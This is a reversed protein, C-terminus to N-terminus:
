LSLAEAQRQSGQKIQNLQKLAEEVQGAILLLSSYLIHYDATHETLPLADLQEFAKTLDNDLVHGLIPQLASISFHQGTDSYDIVPPYYLTWQVADRLKIRPGIVPAQGKSAQASQGQKVRVQGQENSALVVGDFVIVQAQDGSVKVLFETGEHMANFIPTEINLDLAKRSRFYAEGAFLDILNSFVTNTKDSTASIRITTRENLSMRTEELILIDAKSNAGSRLLDDRCLVDNPKAHLWQMTSSRQIEVVGVVTIVRAEIDSCQDEAAANMTWCVLFSFLVGIKKYM